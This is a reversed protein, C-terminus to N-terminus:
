PGRSGSVSRERSCSPARSHARLEAEQLADARKELSPSRLPGCLCHMCCPQQTVAPCPEKRGGIESRRVRLGPLLKSCFPKTLGQVEGHLCMRWAAAVAWRLSAARVRCCSPSAPSLLNPRAKDRESDQQGDPVLPCGLLVAM